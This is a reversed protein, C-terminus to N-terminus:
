LALEFWFTSGHGESSEVGYLGGHLEVVGKVISLGLGTGVGARKHAKDEKYYRDWIYKISEKSIGCGTDAVSIRVRGNSVSQTIRVSRDDGTYTIANNILNYVVQTIKVEDANVYVSEDYIFEINYGEAAKMKSYRAVIKNISDTLDYRTINAEDMGANLKSISLIDDVLRHLHEAEDIIVQVNEPTNEGPIDRMVEGYGRIMTLPTRLDHSVNAILERRLKEVTSLETAAYNLTDSLEQVEKFGKGDFGVSYDGEALRKAGQNIRIIPNAIMRALIIGMLTSLCVFIISIWHLQSRITKVTSDVPTLRANILIYVTDGVTNETVACYMLSEMEAIVNDRHMDNERNKDHPIPFIEPKEKVTETHHAMYEGGAIKAKYIYYSVVSDNNLLGGYSISQVYRLVSGDEILVKIDTSYHEAVANVMANLDDADLHEQVTYYANKMESKVANEYFYNLLVVQFIWVTLLLMVSFVTVCLIVKTKISSFLNRKKNQEFTM